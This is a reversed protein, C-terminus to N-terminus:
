APERRGRARLALAALLRDHFGGFDGNSMVLVTDGPSTRELVAGVLADTIPAVADGGRRRISEAISAVDLREREPVNSRGLPALIAADASHFAEAYADQHLARCATASRPEFVAVLKGEPHRSRIAAITERVATPHHAFDDYVRVGSAEGLLDQRRRVGRFTRLISVAEQVSAGAAECVLAIAAVANRVNHSGALPSLVPGCSTGGVFLDFPQM